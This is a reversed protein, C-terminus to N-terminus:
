NDDILALRLYDPVSISENYIDYAVSIDYMDSHTVTPGLCKGCIYECHGLYDIGTHKRIPTSLYVWLRAHRTMSSFSTRCVLCAYIRGPAEVWTASDTVFDTVFHWVGDVKQM